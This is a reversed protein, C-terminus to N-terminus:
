GGERTTGQGLLTRELEDERWAEWYDKGRLFWVRHGLEEVMAPPLRTVGTADVEVLARESSKELAWGRKKLEELFVRAINTSPLSFKDAGAARAEDFHAQFAVELAYRTSDEDGVFDM